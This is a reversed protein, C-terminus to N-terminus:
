DGDKLEELQTKLFILADKLDAESRIRFNVGDINIRVREKSPRKKFEEAIRSCLLSVVDYAVAAGISIVFSTMIAEADFGIKSTSKGISIEPQDDFSLLDDSSLGEVEITLSEPM